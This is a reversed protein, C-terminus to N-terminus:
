PIKKRRKLDKINRQNRKNSKEVFDDLHPLPPFSFQFVFKKLSNDTTFLFSGASIIDMGILVDNGEALPLGTVLLRQIKLKNPLIINVYYRFSQHEGSATKVNIKSVKLLNLKEVVRDSLCSTTAGTDWVFSNSKYEQNNHPNKIIGTTKITGDFNNYVVKFSLYLPESM